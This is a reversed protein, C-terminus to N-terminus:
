SSLAKLLAEATRVTADQHPQLEQQGMGDIIPQFPDAVGTRIASLEELVALGAFPVSAESYGGEHTMLIRGGCVRAAVDMLKRTLMRYASSSLMLRALPDLGGSDFGCPVIIVEPRYLELAPCVVREFAAAYAGSGSGPPLPININYGIGAGAGSETVHGEFPPSCRDQHISITLARPDAYFASQTGNGHHADWDVFAIRQLGRRELAHLGAIAANGFICFGMGEHALAHHGPPRVLAYANRVRGDLVADMAEICGGVALAAIGYSGRGMLALTGADWALSDAHAKVRDLYERTHFLLIEDDRAMRPPIQTLHKLLGSVDLLNRLRRKTEPAEAHQGPQVPWGYPAVLAFNGTNHWAYLEDWVFGTTM